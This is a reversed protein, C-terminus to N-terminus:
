RGMVGPSRSSKLLTASLRNERIDDQACLGDDQACRLIATNQLCASEEGGSVRSLIVPTAASWCPRDDQARRLIAANIGLSIRPHKAESRM